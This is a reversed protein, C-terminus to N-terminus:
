FNIVRVLNAVLLEKKKKIGDILQIEMPEMDEFSSLGVVSHFNLVDECNLIKSLGVAATTLADLEEHTYYAAFL